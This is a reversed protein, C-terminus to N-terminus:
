ASLEGAAPVRVVPWKGPTNPVYQTGWAWPKDEYGQVAAFRKNFRLIQNGQSDTTKGIWANREDTLMAKYANKREQGAAYGARQCIGYMTDGSVVAYYGGKVPDPSPELPNPDQPKVTIPEPDPKPESIPEENEPNPNDVYPPENVEPPDPEINPDPKAPAAEAKKSRLLIILFVVLVGAAIAGGWILKKNQKM